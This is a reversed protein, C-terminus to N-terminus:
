EDYEDMDQKELELMWLLGTFYALPLLVFGIFLLFSTSYANTVESKSYCGICKLYIM